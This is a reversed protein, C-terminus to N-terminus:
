ISIGHSPRPPQHNEPRHRLPPSTFTEWIQSPMEHRRKALTNIRDYKQDHM